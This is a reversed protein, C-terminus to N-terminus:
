PAIAKRRRVVAQHRDSAPKSQIMLGPRAQRAAPARQHAAQSSGEVPLSILRAPRSGARLRTAAVSGEGRAAQPSDAEAPPESPLGCRGTASPIEVILLRSAAKMR